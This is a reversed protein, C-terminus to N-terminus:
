SCIQKIEDAVLGGFKGKMITNYKILMQRYAPLTTQTHSNLSRKTFESFRGLDNILTGAIGFHPDHNGDFGQFESYHLAKIEDQESASLRSTYAEIASFMSLIDATEAVLAPTEGSHLFPYEWELAWDEKNILLRKVLTPDLETNVDLREMLDALMVGILREGDTIQM